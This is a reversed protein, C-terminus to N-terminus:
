SPIPAVIKRRARESVRSTTAETNLCRIGFSSSSPYLDVLPEAVGMNDAFWDFVNVQRREMHPSSGNSRIANFERNTAKCPRHDQESCQFSKPSVACLNPSVEGSFLTSSSDCPARQFSTPDFDHMRSNRGVTKRSEFNIAVPTERTQNPQSFLLLSYHLSAIFPSKPFFLIKNEIIWSSKFTKQSILFLV